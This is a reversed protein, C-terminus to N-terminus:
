ITKWLFGLTAASAIVVPMSWHFRLLATFAAVALGIGFWDPRANPFLAHQTFFVALNLVVGVVAATIATLIATLNQNGRLYEIFPAGVFIWLFCPVFTAWTTILGGIIGAMVPDLGHPHHYAGMFGVFQTVMILPGPTTEALGLGDLMQEPKIWGYHHVAQQAVYALVSYAGGFTVMAAKSFFIGEQVFIDDWGRVAALLLIPTLWVSGCVATVRFFRRWTPRTHEQPPEDDSIATARLEEKSSNSVTKSFASKAPLIQSGM